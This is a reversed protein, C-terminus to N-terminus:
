NIHSARITRITSSSEPAIHYVAWAGALLRSFDHVLIGHDLSWRDRVLKDRVDESRVPRAACAPGSLTSSPPPFFAFSFQIIATILIFDSRSLPTCKPCLVWLHCGAMFGYIKVSRFLM